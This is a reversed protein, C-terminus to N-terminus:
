RYAHHNELFVSIMRLPLDGKGGVGATKNATKLVFRRGRSRLFGVFHNGEGFGTAWGTGCGSSVEINCTTGECVVNECTITKRDVDIETCTAELYNAEANVKRIPETISRYEVKKASSCPRRSFRSCLPHRLRGTLNHLARSAIISCLSLTSLVNPSSLWPTIKLVPYPRDVAGGVSDDKCVSLVACILLSYLISIM